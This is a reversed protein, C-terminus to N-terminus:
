RHDKERWRSDKAPPAIGYNRGRSCPWSRASCIVLKRKDNHRYLPCTELVSKMTQFMEKMMCLQDYRLAVDATPLTTHTRLVWHKSVTGLEDRKKMSKSTRIPQSGSGSTARTASSHRLVANSCSACRLSSRRAIIGINTCSSTMRFDVFCQGSHRDENVCM